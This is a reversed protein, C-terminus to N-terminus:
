AQDQRGADAGGSGLGPVVRSWLLLILLAEVGVQTWPRRFLEFTSLLPLLTLSGMSWLFRKEKLALMGAAWLIGVVLLEPFAFCVFFGLTTAGGKGGRLGLYASFDHGLIAAVGAAIQWGVDLHLGRAALIPVVGKLFDALGAVVGARRGALRWVNSAGPNRTGHLRVDVGAAQRGAILSFSVSGLLYSGLVLLFGAVRM